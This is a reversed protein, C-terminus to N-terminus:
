KYHKFKYVNWLHEIDEITPEQVKWEVVENGGSYMLPKKMPSNNHGRYGIAHGFEHAILTRWTAKDYKSTNYTINDTDDWILYITQNYIEYVDVNTSINSEDNIIRASGVNKYSDRNVIGVISTRDFSVSNAPDTLKLTKFTERSIVKIKITSSEDYKGIYNFQIGLKNGWSKSAYEIARKFENMDGCPIGCGTEVKSSIKRNANVDIYGIESFQDSYWSNVFSGYNGISALGFVNETYLYSLTCIITAVVIITRLSKIIGM